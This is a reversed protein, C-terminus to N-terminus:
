LRSCEHPCNTEQKFTSDTQANGKPKEALIKPLDSMMEKRLSTKIATLSEPEVRPIKSSSAILNESPSNEAVSTKFDGSVLEAVAKRKQIRTTM